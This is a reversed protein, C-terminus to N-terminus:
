KIVLSAQPSCVIINNDSESNLQLKYAGKPIKLSVEVRYGAKAYNQNNFVTAVDPRSAGAGGDGLLYPKGQDSVAIIKVVSPSNKNFPDLAWGLFAVTAGEDVSFQQPPAEVGGEVKDVYCGNASYLSYEESCASLLSLPLIFVILSLIKKTM